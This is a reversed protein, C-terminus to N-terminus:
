AKNVTFFKVFEFCLRAHRGDIRLGSPRQIAVAKYSRVVRSQAAAALSTGM